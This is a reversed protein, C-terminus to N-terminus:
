GPQPAGRDLDDSHKQGQFPNEWKGTVAANFLSGSLEASGFTARLLPETTIFLTPFATIAAVCLFSAAAAAMVLGGVACALRKCFGM